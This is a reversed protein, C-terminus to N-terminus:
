RAKRQSWFNQVQTKFDKEYNVFELKRFFGLVLSQKKMMQLSLCINCTYTLMQSLVIPKQTAINGKMRGTTKIPGLYVQDSRHTQDRFSVSYTLSTTHFKVSTVRTSSSEFQISVSISLFANWPLTAIHSLRTAMKPVKFTIDHM